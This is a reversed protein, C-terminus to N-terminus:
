ISYWITGNMGFFCEPENILIDMTYKEFSYRM